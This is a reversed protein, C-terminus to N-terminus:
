LAGVVRHVLSTLADDILKDACVAVCLALELLFESHTDSAAVAVTTIAVSVAHM